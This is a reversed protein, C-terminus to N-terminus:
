PNQGPRGPVPEGRGDPTFVVIRTPGGQPPTNIAAALRDLAASALGGIIQAGLPLAPQPSSFPAIPTEGPTSQVPEAGGVMLALEETSLVQIVTRSKM